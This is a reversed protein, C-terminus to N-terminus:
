YGMSFAITTGTPKLIFGHLVGNVTGKALVYGQDNVDVASTLTTGAPLGQTNFTLDAVQGLLTNYKTEM